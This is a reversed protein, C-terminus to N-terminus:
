DPSPDGLQDQVNGEVVRIDLRYTSLTTDCDLDGVALAYGETPSVRTWHYSFLTDEDIHFGMAKWGPDAEWESQARRPHKNTPSGCAAGDPGPMVTETSPPLSSRENHYSKIKRAINSLQLSAETRKGKKMYDTFASVVLVQIAIGIILGLAGCVLGAIAMGKGRGVKNAKAIGVAGFIIGLVALIWGLIAVFCLVLGLIGLVLGAVAM